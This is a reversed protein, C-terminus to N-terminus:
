DLAASSKIKTLQEDIVGPFLYFLPIFAYLAISLTTSILALCSAVFYLFPYGLSWISAQRVAKRHIMNESSIYRHLVYLWLVNYVLGTLSLSLGYFMVVTSLQGYSGILATSFPIFAVCMLLLLNIVLAARDVRKLFHFLAHHNLWIVGIVIFSTAYSLFHPLIHLLQITAESPTAQSLNPVKIEIAQLTAAFAFVGDSFAEFRNLSMLSYGQKRGDAHLM